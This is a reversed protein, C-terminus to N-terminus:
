MNEFALSEDLRPDRVPTLASKRLPLASGTLFLGCVMLFTTLDSLALGLQPSDQRYEPVIIWYLDFWHMVLMWVAWVGLLPLSRKPWRSMLGLFPIIFHGILLAYTLGMWQGNQRRALWITEEPINSYWILMYQSFAIYAWFVVFTFILKGVDHLQEVTVLREMEPRRRLGLAVLALLSFFGAMCGSFFYVGFVTSFWHPDLSMLFDISFFTISLALLIMAAPSFREM